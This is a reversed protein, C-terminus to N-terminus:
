FKVQSMIMILTLSILTITTPHIWDRQNFIAREIDPVDGRAKQLMFNYFYKDFDADSMSMSFKMATNVLLNYNYENDEPDIRKLIMKALDKAQTSVFKLDRSPGILRSKTLAENNVMFLRDARIQDALVDHGMSDLVDSIQKSVSDILYFFLEKQKDNKTIRGQKAEPDPDFPKNIMSELHSHFSDEIVKLDKHIADTNFDGTTNKLLKWDLVDSFPELISSGNSELIQSFSVIIPLYKSTGAGVFYKAFDPKSMGQPHSERLTELFNITDFVIPYMLNKAAMRGKGGKIWKVFESDFDMAVQVIRYSIEKNSISKSLHLIESRLNHLVKSNKM